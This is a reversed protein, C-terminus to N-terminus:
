LQSAAKRTHRAHGSEIPHFGGIRGMHGIECAHATLYLLPEEWRFVAWLAATRACPAPDASPTKEETRGTGPLWQVRVLYGQEVTM